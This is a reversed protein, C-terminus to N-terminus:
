IRFQTIYEFPHMCSFQQICAPKVATANLPKVWPKPKKPAAFREPPAAFPIGLFKNVHTSSSPVSTTTGIVVGSDITATPIASTTSLFVSIAIYNAVRFFFM